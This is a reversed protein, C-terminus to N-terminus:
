CHKPSNNKSHLVQFFQSTDRFPFTYLHFTVKTETKQQTIQTEERSWQTLKSYMNVVGNKKEEWEKKKVLMHNM